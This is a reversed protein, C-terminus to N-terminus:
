RSWVQGPIEGFKEQKPGYVGIGFIRDNGGTELSRQLSFPEGNVPIGIISALSAGQEGVPVQCWASACNFGRVGLSDRIHGDEWGKGALREPGEEAFVGNLRTRLSAAELPTLQIMAGFMRHDSTRLRNAWQNLRWNGTGNAYQFHIYAGEFNALTHQIGEFLMIQLVGNGPQTVGEILDLHEEVHPNFVVKGTL